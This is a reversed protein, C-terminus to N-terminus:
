RSASRRDGVRGDVQHVDASGVEKMTVLRYGGELGSHGDSAFLGQGSGEIIGPLHPVDSSAM